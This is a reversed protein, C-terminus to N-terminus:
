AALRGQQTERAEPSGSALIFQAIQERLRETEQALLSSAATTEEAMAANQQTVQDMQHTASNVESLSASQEQASAALAEMFGNIRVVHDGIEQLALGTQNVLAVGNQVNSASRGILDKIERAAC